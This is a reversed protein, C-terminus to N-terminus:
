KRHGGFGRKAKQPEIVESVPAPKPELSKSAKKVYVIVYYILAFFLVFVIVFLETNGTKSKRLELVRKKNREQNDGQM